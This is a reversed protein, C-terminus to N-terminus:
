LYSPVNESWRSINTCIPYTTKNEAAKGNAPNQANALLKSSIRDSAKLSACTCWTPRDVFM